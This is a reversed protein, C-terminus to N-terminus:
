WIEPICEQVSALQAAASSLSIIQKINNRTGIHSEGLLFLLTFSIQFLETTNDVSYYIDDDADATM